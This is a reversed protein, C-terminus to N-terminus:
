TRVISALWARVDGLSTTEITSAEITEVQWGDDFTSRIEDQRIRHPGWEGPQLDSFCLLFYRAGTPMCQSLSQAFTLRDPGALVHFLGCDLVTDFRQGLEALELANGTIFRVTLAREAAKRQAIVIANSAADLGTADLGAAAAMMAHEGTGCGVDLVRGLLRRAAALAAFASQPRGIDWPPTGAAYLANFDDIDRPSSRETQEDPVVM